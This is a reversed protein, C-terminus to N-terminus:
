AAKASLPRHYDRIEKIRGDEIELVEEMPVVLRRASRQAMLFRSHASLTPRPRCSTLSM